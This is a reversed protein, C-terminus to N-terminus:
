GKRLVRTGKLSICCKFVVIQTSLNSMVGANDNNRFKGISLAIVFFYILPPFIM